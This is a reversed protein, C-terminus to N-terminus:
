KADTNHIDRTDSDISETQGDVHGCPASHEAGSDVTIVHSAHGPWTTRQKKLPTWEQDEDSDTDHEIWEDISGNDDEDSDEASDQYTESANDSEDEKQVYKKEDNTLVEGQLLVTLREAASQFLVSSEDCEEWEIIDRIKALADQGARRPTRRPRRDADVEPIVVHDQTDSARLTEEAVADMNNLGIFLKCDACITTKNSTTITIDFAELRWRVM